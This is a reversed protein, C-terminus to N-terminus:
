WHLTRLLLDPIMKGQNDFVIDDVSKNLIFSLHLSKNNDDYSKGVIFLQERIPKIRQLLLQDQNMQLQFSKEQKELDQRKKLLEASPHTDSSTPNKKKSLYNESEKLSQIQRQLEQIKYELNKIIVSLFQFELTNDLAIGQLFIIEEDNFIRPENQKASHFLDDAFIKSETKWDPGFKQVFVKRIHKQEVLLRQQREEFIRQHKQQSDLLFTERIWSRFSDKALQFLSSDQTSQSKGLSSRLSTTNKAWSQFVDQCLDAHTQGQFGFFICCFTISFLFSFSKTMTM